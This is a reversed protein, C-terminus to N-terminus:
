RKLETWADLLGRDGDVDVGAAHRNTLWLLVASSTGRVTTDAEAAGVIGRGREDLELWSDSADTVLLRLMGSPRNATPQALLGPLFETVFEEIGAVAVRQDLPAPSPGGRVSAAYEADWCHIAMEIALRRRWWAVGTIASAPSRGCM